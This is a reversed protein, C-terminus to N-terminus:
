DVPYEEQLEAKDKTYTTVWKRINRLSRADLDIFTDMSDYSKTLYSKTDQDYYAMTWAIGRFMGYYIVDDMDNDYFSQEENGEQRGEFVMDLWERKAVLDSEETDQGTKTILYQPENNLLYNATVRYQRKILNVFVDKGKDKGISGSESGASRKYQLVPFKNGRYAMMVMKCEEEWQKRQSINANILENQSDVLEESTTMTSIYKPM